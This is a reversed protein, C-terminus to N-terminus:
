EDSVLPLFISVPGSPAGLRFPGHLVTSGDLRTEVLWYYAAGDV